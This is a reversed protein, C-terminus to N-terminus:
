DQFSTGYRSNFYEKVRLPVMSMLVSSTKMHDLIDKETDIGEM